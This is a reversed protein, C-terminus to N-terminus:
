KRQIFAWFQLQQITHSNKMESVGRYCKRHQSYWNVKVAITDLPKLKFMDEHVSSVKKDRQSRHKM